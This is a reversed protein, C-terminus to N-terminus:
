RRKGEALRRGHAVIKEQPRPEGNRREYMNCAQCLGHREAHRWRCNTCPRAVIPKRGARARTTETVVLM